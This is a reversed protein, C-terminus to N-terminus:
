WRSRQRPSDEPRRVIEAVIEQAVLVYPVYFQRPEGADTRVAGRPEKREVQEKQEEWFSRVLREAEVDMVRVRNRYEPDRSLIAAAGGTTELTFIPAGPRLRNFVAAEDLVGKMGGIAIMAVPSTEEIMTERMRRMSHPAQPRDKIKLDIFEGPEADTWEVSVLPHRILQQTAEAWYPEWVRSQYIVVSPNKWSPESEDRETSPQRDEAPAPLFYNDVVRAVLPSISPHAGFVLTGGEMFIARAVCVVAEEIRLPAEQIRDYEDSREPTPVSASLFISRGHLRSQPKLDPIPM